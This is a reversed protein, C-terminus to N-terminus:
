HRSHTQVTIHTTPKPHTHFHHNKSSLKQQYTTQQFHNTFYTTIEFQFPKTSPPKYCKPQRNKSTSLLTHKKMSKPSIPHKDPNANFKLTPLPTHLIRLVCPKPIPTKSFTNM